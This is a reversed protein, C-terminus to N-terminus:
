FRFRLGVTPDINVHGGNQYGNALGGDVESFMAGAYIDFKHAFGFRYDILGSVANMYGSCNSHSSNSCNAIPVAASQYFDQNYRYYAVTGVLDPTFAYKAGTWYVQFWEPTFFKNGGNTFTNGGIDTFVNGAKALNSTPNTYQIDEFGGFFTFQNWTYKGLLMISATNSVTSALFDPTAPPIFATSALTSLSVVDQGWSGIADFSFHYADFGVQGQYYQTSGNGQQWGGVQALAAARFNGVTVRYKFATNSRTDETRGDGATTGSFGIVSFAYSGGMPDYANVGDLTLSNVRGFTLTGYTPNSVGIFLQSNDWQGARASDASSSQRSFPVMNNEFQAGPGNALELSYPDFGTEAQGVFSWGYALPENVKVGINSQSLGNPALEYINPRGAKSIMYNDGFHATPNWPAGFKDYGVGMDVTGYLTIGAYTLPCETTLFDQFSTCSTAKAPPPPEPAGKMTPLDAAQAAAALALSAGGAMLISKLFNMERGVQEDQVDGPREGLRDVTATNILELNIRYRL